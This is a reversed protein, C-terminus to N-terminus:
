GPNNCHHGISSRLHRSATPGNDPNLRPTHLTHLNKSAVRITVGVHLARGVVSRAGTPARWIPKRKRQEVYMNTSSCAKSHTAIASCIDAERMFSLQEFTAICRVVDVRLLSHCRLMAISCLLAYYLVASCLLSCSLIPRSLFAQPRFRSISAQLRFRDGVGKCHQVKERFGEGGWGGVGRIPKPGESRKTHLFTATERGLLANVRVM